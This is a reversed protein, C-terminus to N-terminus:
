RDSDPGALDRAASVEDDDLGARDVRAHQAAQEDIWRQHGEWAAQRSTGLAQGIQAWSAGAARAARVALQRGCGAERVLVEGLALLELASSPDGPARDVGADDLEQRRLADYRAAATLLTHERELAAPSSM